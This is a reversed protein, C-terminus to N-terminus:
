VRLQARQVVWTEDGTALMPPHDVHVITQEISRSGDNEEVVQWNGGSTSGRRYSHHITVERWRWRDALQPVGHYEGSPTYDGAIVAIPLDTFDDRLLNQMTHREPQAPRLGQHRRRDSRRRGSTHVASLRHGCTARRGHARRVPGARRH